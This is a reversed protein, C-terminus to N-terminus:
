ALVPIRMRFGSRVGGKLLRWTRKKGLKRVGGNGLGQFEPISFRWRKIWQGCFSCYISRDLLDLVDNERKAKNKGRENEEVGDVEPLGGGGSVLAQRRRAKEKDTLSSDAEIARIAAVLEASGGVNAPATTEAASEPSPFCDPCQWELTSVLTEPPRSLCPAHWPTACTHCHVSEAEPPKTKCVMCIGDADCPLDSAM